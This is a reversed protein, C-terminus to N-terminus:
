AKHCCSHAMGAQTGWTAGPAQQRCCPMTRVGAPSAWCMCAPAAQMCSSGLFGKRGPRTEGHNSCPQWGRPCACSCRGGGGVCVCVRRGRAPIVQLVEVLARALIHHTGDLNTQLLCPTALIHHPGDLHPFYPCVRGPSARPQGPVPAACCSAASPAALHWTCVVQYAADPCVLHCPGGVQLARSCARRSRHATTRPTCRLAAQCTQQAGMQRAVCSSSARSSYATTRPMRM